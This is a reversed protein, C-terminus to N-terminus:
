RAGNPRHPESQLWEDSARSLLRRTFDMLVEPRPEDSLLGLAELVEGAPGNPLSPRNM